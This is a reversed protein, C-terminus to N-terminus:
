DVFYGNQIFKIKIYHDVQVGTLCSLYTVNKSIELPRNFNLEFNITSPSFLKLSWTFNLNQTNVENYNSVTSQDTGLQRLTKIKSNTGKKTM